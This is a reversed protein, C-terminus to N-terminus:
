VIWRHAVACAILGQRSPVGAREQLHTLMQQAEAQSLDLREAAQDLPEGWVLASLLLREPLSLPLSRIPTAKRTSLM